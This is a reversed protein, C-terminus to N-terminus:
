EASVEDRLWEPIVEGSPAGQIDFTGRLQNVAEEIQCLWGAMVQTHSIGTRETHGLLAQFKARLDQGRLIAEAEFAATQAENRLTDADLVADDADEDEPLSQKKVALQENLNYIMRDKDWSLNRSAELTAKEALLAKSIAEKEKELAEKEKAHKSILTEALDLLEDKDGAKAAEILAVREDQNLRRFQRLDRYGIGMRSMSELAEEGFAKLNAIDTNAKEDSIGLLGCFDVWTGALELGNPTRMGALQQYLKHEKVFALKSVGFTQLLDGAARFAQAQGLLQNVLDREARYQASLNIAAVQETLPADAATVITEVPQTNSKERAM